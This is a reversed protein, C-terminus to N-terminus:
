ITANQEAMQAQIETACSMILADVVSSFEALFGDDTTKVLRGHHADIKPDFV